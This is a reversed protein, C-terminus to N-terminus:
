AARNLLSRSTIRPPQMQIQCSLQQLTLCGLSDNQRRNAVCNLIAELMGRNLLEDAQLLLHLIGGRRSVRRIARRLKMVTWWGINLRGTLRRAPPAQWVGFRLSRPKM